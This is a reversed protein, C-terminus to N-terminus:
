QVIMNYVPIIQLTRCKETSSKCIHINARQSKSCTPNKQPKKNKPWICLSIWINLSHQKSGKRSSAKKGRSVGLVSCGPISHLAIDVCVFKYNVSVLAFLHSFVRFTFCFLYAVSSFLSYYSSRRSYMGLYEILCHRM